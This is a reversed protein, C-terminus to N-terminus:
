SQLFNVLKNYNKERTLIENNLIESIDMNKKDKLFEITIDNDRITGMLNQMRKLNTIFHASTKPNPLLELLYRLKKCDKRMEHLESIANSDGVVIPLKKQISDDLSLATKDFNKKMKNSSIKLKILSKKYKQLELGKKRAKKLNFKRDKKLIGLLLDNSPNSQFQSIKQSIIDIDRIKSNIKFFQKYTSHFTKMKTKSRIKKPLIGYSTDIHRIAVRIDHINKENPNKLYNKLLINVSKQYKKFKKVVLNCLIQESSM